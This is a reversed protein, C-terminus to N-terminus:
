AALQERPTQKVEHGAAIVDAIAFPSKWAPYDSQEWTARVSNDLNYASVFWGRGNRGSGFSGLCFKDRNAQHFAAHHAALKQGAPTLTFAALASAAYSLGLLAGWAHYLDAASFHEPYACAIIAWDCDEEYYNPGAWTKITRLEAPMTALKEPSVYYGGHGATSISWIGPAFQNVQQARGWPTDLAQFPVTASIVSTAKM